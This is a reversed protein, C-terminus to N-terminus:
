VRVGELKLGEPRPADFFHCFAPNEAFKHIKPNKQCTKVPLFISLSSGIMTNNVTHRAPTDIIFDFSLDRNISIPVIIESESLSM